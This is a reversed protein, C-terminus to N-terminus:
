YDKLSILLSIALCTRPMVRFLVCSSSLAEIGAFRILSVEGGQRRSCILGFFALSRAVRESWFTSMYRSTHWLSCPTLDTRDSNVPSELSLGSMIMKPEDIPLFTPVIKLTMSCYLSCMLFTYQKYFSSCGRRWVISCIM